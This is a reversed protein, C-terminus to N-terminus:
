KFTQIIDKVKQELMDFEQPRPNFPGKELIVHAKPVEKYFREVLMAVYEETHFLMPDERINGFSYTVKFGEPVQSIIYTELVDTITTM